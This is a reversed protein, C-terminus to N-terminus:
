GSCCRFAQRWSPASRSCSSSSRSRSRSRARRGSTTRSRRISQRRRARTASSASSSARIPANHPPSADLGPRDQRRGQGQRRSHRLPRARSPRGERDAPTPREDRKRRRSVRAVVDAIAAKFAPDGVRAHPEPDPHERRRAAQVRRRPHPGDPGVRRARARTPDITNTGVMGGLAFAVVVFALWGFTATKWHAASWRGM